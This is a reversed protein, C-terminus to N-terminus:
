QTEDAPIGLLAAAENRAARLRYNGPAVENMLEVAKHFAEIALDQEGSQWLAMAEWFGITNKRSINQTRAAGLIKLCNAYEGDRYHAAAILTQYQANTPASEAALSASALAQTSNRLTEDPCTLLLWAENGLENPSKGTADGRLAIAARYEVTADETRNLRTLTDGLYSLAWAMGARTLQVDPALELSAEFDDRAQEFLQRAQEVQDTLLGVVGLNSLCVGRLRLYLADQPASEILGSCMDIALHMEEAAEDTNENDRLIQAVTMRAYVESIFYRDVHPFGQSLSVASVLAADAANFAENTRGQRYLAQALDTLAATQNERYIPVDPRTTILADYERIAERSASIQEGTQGLLYHTAARTLLADALGQVYAPEDEDEDILSKFRTVAESLSTLSDDLRGTQQFHEGTSVLMQALALRDVAEGSTDALYLWQNVALTLEAGAEDFRSAGNLLIGLNGHASARLRETELDPNTGTLVQPIVEEIRRFEAEAEDTRGAASYLLGLKNHVNALDLKKSADTELNTIASQYAEEASDYQNLLRRVDGLRILAHTLERQLEPDDSQEAVLKTYEEAAYELLEKRFQQTGPLNLLGEGLGTLLEDVMNRTRQFHELADQRAAATAAHAEAERHRANNILVAAVIAVVATLLAGFLLAQALSRHKRFWRQLQEVRTEEYASVREDAMWRRIDEAMDSACQYRDSRSRSMAQKCIANLPAPITPDANRPEPTVGETIRKLLQGTDRAINGTSQGRHPTTGLLLAYLVAGLGYIDTRQDVLSIRGAAQEPAMYAPTGILQGEITEMLSVSGELTVPEMTEDPDSPPTQEVLTALGWDLVLVEGFGGLMINSPKLDRHVIGRAGAYAVANCVDIFTSLLEHLDLATDEGERKRKHYEQIRQSLTQGRLLKMTYYPAGDEMQDLEHVPIINPHELQGTIQAEKILRMQMEADVVRDARFRKLAVDRKLQPDKALWVEGIGGVGCVRTLTYRSKPASEIDRNDLRESTDIDPPTIFTAGFIGGEAAQREITEEMDGVGNADLGSVIITKEFPATSADVYEGTAPKEQKTDVTEEDYKPPAERQETSEDSTLSRFAAAADGDHKEILTTVVGHVYDRQQRTMARQKVLVDALEANHRNSVAEEATLLQEDTVVNLQVALRGFLRDFESPSM